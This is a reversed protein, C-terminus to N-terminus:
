IKVTVLNLNYRLRYLMNRTTPKTFWNAVQGNSSILQVNLTGM